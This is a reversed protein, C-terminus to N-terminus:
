QAHCQMKGDGHKHCHFNEEMTMGDHSIYLKVKVDEGSKWTKWGTLHQAHDANDRTYDNIALGTVHQMEEITFEAMASASGILGFAMAILMIKKM